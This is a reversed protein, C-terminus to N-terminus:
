TVAPAEVDTDDAAVCERSLITVYVDLAYGTVSALDGDTGAPRFRRDGLGLLQAVAEAEALTDRIIDVNTGVQPVYAPNISLTWREEPHEDAWAFWRACYVSPKHPSGTM